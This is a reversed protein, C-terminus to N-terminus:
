YDNLGSSVDEVNDHCAALFLAALMYLLITHRM